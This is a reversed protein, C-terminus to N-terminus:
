CSPISDDGRVFYLKRQILLRDLIDRSFFLFLALLLAIDYDDALVDQVCRGMEKNSNLLLHSDYM